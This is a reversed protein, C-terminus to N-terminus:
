DADPSTKAIIAIIKIYPNSKLRIVSIKVVVCKQANIM